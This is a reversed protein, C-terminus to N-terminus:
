GELDQITYREIYFTVENTFGLLEIRLDESCLYVYRQGRNYEASCDFDTYKVVEINADNRCEMITYFFDLADKGTLKTEDNLRLEATNTLYEFTKTM